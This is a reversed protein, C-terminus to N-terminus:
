RSDTTSNRLDQYGQAWAKDRQSAAPGIVRVVLFNGRTRVLETIDFNCPTFGGEHRGLEEGNLYAVALYNCAGFHLFLRSKPSKM